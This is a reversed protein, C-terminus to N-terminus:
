LTVLLMAAMGASMVAHGAWAPDKVRTRLGVARALWWCGTAACSVALLISVVLVPAPAGTSTMGPAAPMAAAPLATLMWIMAVAMLAQPQNALSHRGRRGQSTVMAFGLAACGFLAAQVVAAAFPESWWTMAILSACMALCFGAPVQGAADGAGTMVRGGAACLRAGRPLAAGLAAVAFVVTFLWRATLSTIM